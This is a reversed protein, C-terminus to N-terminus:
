RIRCIRIGEPRNEEQDSDQRYARIHEPRNEEQDSVQSYSRIHVPRNQGIRERTVSRGAAGSM